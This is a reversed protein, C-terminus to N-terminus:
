GGVSRGSSHMSIEEASPTTDKSSLPLSGPGAGAGYQHVCHPEAIGCDRTLIQYTCQEVERASPRKQPLVALMASVVRLMPAVGRFVQDEEKAADKALGAMWSEVQGINKHFSTDLIAGGRGAKKHKAGRHAAFAKTQRKMLHSLFELMVCGLSFVDAAQRDLSPALLHSVSSASSSASTTRSISFAQTDPSLPPATMSSKGAPCPCTVLARSWQEPAAYDYSEKDFASKEPANILAEASIRRSFDAYFVHRRDLNVLITSPRINGHYLGGTHLFSLTDVLCHIWNMILLRRGQKGMAKFPSPLSALLSKVNCTSTPRFLVYGVGQHIYSAWYSVIHDNQVSKTSNIEYLVEEVPLLGPGTGLPIKRRSFVVGPRGPLEVRDVASNVRGVVNLPVIESDQYATHAGREPPKVLYHYQRTYFKRDVREDGTATLALRRVQDLAIPLDSDDWADDVVGFIQDPVGLEVLILFIRKAKGDIWDWYTGDTLGAGFDLHRDLRAIEEPLLHSCIFERTVTAEIKSPVWWM